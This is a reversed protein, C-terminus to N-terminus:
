PPRSLSRQSGLRAAPGSPTGSGLDSMAISLSGSTSALVGWTPSQSTSTTSIDMVRPGAPPFGISRRASTTFSAATQRVTPAAVAAAAPGRSSARPWGDIAPAPERAQLAPVVGEGDQREAEVRHGLRRDTREPKTVVAVMRGNATSFIFVFREPRPDGDLNVDLVFFNPTSPGLLSKPWRGFTTITHVLRGGAGHDQTVQKIDLRGPKDNGDAFATFSASAAGVWALGLAVAIVAVITHRPRM